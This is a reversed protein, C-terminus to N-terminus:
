FLKIKPASISLGNSKITNFFTKMHKFHQDLIKSYTLVDHIYVISSESYDNLIDNMIRQSEFPSNKLKFPKVNWEYHGFPITFATKYRDKEDIQIKQFSSKMHFKSFIKAGYLRELLDKQNPILYRIWRFVNNFPKYGM